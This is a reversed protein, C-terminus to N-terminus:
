PGVPVWRYGKGETGLHGIGPFPLHAAGVWYRHRAADAFAKRRQAAAAAPDSDFRITVAPDAFQVAASHMLDGWLLLKEGRSEIVFCAHGPTHGYCALAAIGPVLQTDGAFTKFRGAALYPKFAAMAQQFSDRNDPAAAALNEQSLWYAAERADARVIANPFAAQEGALLGGIHDGHMHTIYIEDVQEPLYGSAKLNSLLRGNAPDAAAGTGTDVLVLQTGTNILFGNVSTTVPDQAFSRQLARQLDAASVHMLLAQHPLALTGDSLATIEFNGLMMRYFGPAPVTAFPAGAGAAGTGLAFGAMGVCISSALKAYRM